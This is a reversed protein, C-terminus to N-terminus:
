ITEAFWKRPLSIHDKYERRVLSGASAAEALTQKGPLAQTNGLGVAERLPENEEELM